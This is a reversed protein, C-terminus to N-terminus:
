SQFRIGVVKLHKIYVNGHLYVNQAAFEYAKLQENELYLASEKAHLHQALRQAAEKADIQM